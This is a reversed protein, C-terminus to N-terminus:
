LFKNFSLTKSRSCKKNILENLMPEMLDEQKWIIQFIEMKVELILVLTTNKEKNQKLKSTFIKSITLALHNEKAQILISRDKM